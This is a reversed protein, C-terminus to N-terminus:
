TPEVPLVALGLSLDCAACRQSWYRTLRRVQFSDRHTPHASKPGPAAIRVFFPRGCRPCSSRDLMSVVIAFGGGGLVSIVLSIWAILETDSWAYASGTLAMMKFDFVEAAFYVLLGAFACVAGCLAVLQLKRIRRL